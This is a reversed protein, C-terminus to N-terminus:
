TPAEVGLIPMLRLNYLRQSSVLQVYRIDMDPTSRFHAYTKGGRNCSKPISAVDVSSDM